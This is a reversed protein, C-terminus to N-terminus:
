AVADTDPEADAADPQTDAIAIADTVTDAIADSDSAASRPRLPHLADDKAYDHQQRHGALLHLSYSGLARGDHRGHMARGGTGM